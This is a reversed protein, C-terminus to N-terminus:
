AKIITILFIGAGILAGVVGGLLAIFSQVFETRYPMVYLYIMVFLAVIAIVLQIIGAIRTKGEGFYVTMGGTFLLAVGLGLLLMSLFSSFAM